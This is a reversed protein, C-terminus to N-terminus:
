DDDGGRDERGIESIQRLLYGRDFGPTSIPKMDVDHISRKHWRDRETIVDDPHRPRGRFEEEIDVEHDDGRLLVEPRKFVGARVADDDMLLRAGMQM